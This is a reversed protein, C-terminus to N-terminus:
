IHKTMGWSENFCLMKFLFRFHAWHNKQEADSSRDWESVWKRVCCLQWRALEGPVIEFPHRGPEDQNAPLENVQSGQLPICGQLLFSLVAHSLCISLCVSLCAPVLFVGTDVTNLLWVLFWNTTRSKSTYHMNFMISNQTCQARPVRGVCRPLSSPPLSSEPFCRKM